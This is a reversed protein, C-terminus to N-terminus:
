GGALLCSLGWALRRCFGGMLVLLGPSFGLVRAGCVCVFSLPLCVTPYPPPPAVVAGWSLFFPLPVPPPLSTSCGDTCFAGINPRSNLVCPCIPFLCLSLGLCCCVCLLFCPSGLLGRYRFGPSLSPHSSLSAASTLFPFVGVWSGLSVFFVCWSLSVFQPLTSSASAPHGPLRAVCARVALLVGGWWRHVSSWSWPQRVAVPPPCGWRPLTIWGRPGQIVGSPWVGL